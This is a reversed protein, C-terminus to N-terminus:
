VEMVLGRYLSSCFYFPSSNIYFLYEIVRCSDHQLCHTIAICHVAQYLATYSCHLVVMSRILTYGTATGNFILTLIVPSRAVSANWRTNAERNRWLDKRVLVHRAHSFGMLSTPARRQLLRRRSHLLLIEDLDLRVAIDLITRLETSLSVHPVLSDELHTAILAM